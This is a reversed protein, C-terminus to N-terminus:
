QESEAVQKKYTSSQLFCGISALLFFGSSLIYGNMSFLTKEEAPLIAGLYFFSGVCLLTIAFRRYDMSKEILENDQHNM